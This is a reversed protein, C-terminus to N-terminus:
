ARIDVLTGLVQDATEIVRAGAAAEREGVKLEVLSTALDPEAPQATQSDRVQLSNRAIDSGAEAVRNMGGQMASLGSSFASPPIQM